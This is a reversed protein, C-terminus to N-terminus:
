KEKEELLVSEIVVDELPKDSRDKEVTAIEDAVEQGSIVRGFITYDPSLPYDAVMIFFQSGQTNPGANAMAVVGKKYGEQYLESEPDIEDAFSYGPGGTGTGTPDGGQIMFGDIVRHFIVGDYFGKEALKVFNEVTRPADSPYTEFKIDGKNTKLTIVYEMNNNKNDEIILEEEQKAYYFVLAVFGVFLVSTLILKKNM